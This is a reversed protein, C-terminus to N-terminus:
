IAITKKIYYTGHKRALYVYVHVKAKKKKTVSKKSEKEQKRSSAVTKIKRAINVSGQQSVGTGSIQVQKRQSAKRWRRDSM